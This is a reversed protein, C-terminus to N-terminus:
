SFKGTADHSAGDAIRGAITEIVGQGELEAYAKEAHQDLAHAM